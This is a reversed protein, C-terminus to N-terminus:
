EVVRKRGGNKAKYLNDDAQKLCAHLNSDTLATAVGFSATIPHNVIGQENITFEDALGSAQTIQRWPRPSEPWPKAGITGSSFSGLVIATFNRKGWAGSRGIVM